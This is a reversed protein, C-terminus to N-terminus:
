RPDRIGGTRTRRQNSAGHHLAVRRAVLEGFTLGHSADAALRRFIAVARALAQVGDRQKREDGYETEIVTRGALPPSAPHM